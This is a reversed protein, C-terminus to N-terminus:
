EAAMALVTRIAKPYSGFFNEQTFVPIRVDPQLGKGEHVEGDPSSWIENSLTLHFDNPMWKNLFSSLCGRTPEGVHRVHPFQKMAM